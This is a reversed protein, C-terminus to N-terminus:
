KLGDGVSSSSLPSMRVAVTLQWRESLYRRDKAVKAVVARSSHLKASTLPLGQTESQVREGDKLTQVSAVDGATKVRATM